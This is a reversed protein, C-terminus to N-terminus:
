DPSGPSSSPHFQVDVVFRHTKTETDYTEFESVRVCPTPLAILIAVAQDRLTKADAYSKDVFDFQVRIDDTEGEDTGDITQDPDRAAVTFRIAPWSPAGSGQPFTNPTCRGGALTGLAEKITEAVNM